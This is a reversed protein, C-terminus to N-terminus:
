EVDDIDRMKLVFVDEGQHRDCYLVGTLWVEGKPITLMAFDAYLSTRVIIREGTPSEFLRDCTTGYDADGWQAGEEEVCRLPGVKVLRGCMEASLCAIEVTTPQVEEVEGCIRVRRDIERRTAIPEVGYDDWEYITRGVQLVGKYERAWLGDLEVVVRCGVPYLSALSYSDLCVEVGGTSDEVVISKYFNGSRDNALVRGAITGGDFPGMQALQPLTAITTTYLGEDLTFPPEKHSDYCGVACVSLLALTLACM